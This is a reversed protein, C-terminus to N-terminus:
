GAKHAAALGNESWELYPSRFGALASPSLGLGSGPRLYGPSEEPDWPRTLLDIARRMEEEWEAATLARGHPHSHTHIGIEHGQDVAERWAQKVFVPLDAGSYFTDPPTDAEPALYGSVVFFTYHPSVGDFSGPNGTGAPNRRAAFLSTLYHLGGDSGSGPLGSFGNDDTSVCVFQPIESVALGAPGTKAPRERCVTLPLSFLLIGASFVARFVISKENKM